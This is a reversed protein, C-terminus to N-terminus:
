FMAIIAVIARYAGYGVAIMLAFLSLLLIAFFAMSHRHTGAPDQLHREVLVLNKRNAKFVFDFMDGVFPITGVMADVGINFVMRALVAKSVRMKAAILVFYSSVTLGVLDGVGPILGLIGDLGVRGLIPVPVLSDMVDAISRLRAVEV